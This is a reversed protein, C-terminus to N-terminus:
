LAPCTLDAKVLHSAPLCYDAPEPIVVVRSVDDVGYWTSIANIVWEIQPAGAPQLDVAESVLAIRVPVFEIPEDASKEARQQAISEGRLELHEARLNLAAATTATYSTAPLLTLLALVGAGLLAPVKAKHPSVLRVLALLGLMSTIAMAFAPNTFTRLAITPSGTKAIVTHALFYIAFVALALGMLRLPHLSARWTPASLAYLSLASIAILLYGWDSSHGFFLSLDSPLNKLIGTLSIETGYYERRAMTGPSFYILAFGLLSGLWLAGGVLRLTAERRLLGAVLLLFGAIGTCITLPETFMGAWTAALALALAGRITIKREALFFALCFTLATFTLGGLYVTSSTLWLYSDFMSPSLVLGGAVILTALSHSVVIPSQEFSVLRRMIYAVAAVLTLFMLAPVLQIASQGLLAYTFAFLSAQGIRGNHTLYHDVVYTFPNGQHAYVNFYSFDDAIISARAAFYLFTGAVLATLVALAVIPLFNRRMPETQQSILTKRM